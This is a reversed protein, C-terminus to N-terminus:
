GPVQRSDCFLVLFKGGETGERWGGGLTRARYVLTNCVIWRKSLYVRMVGRDGAASDIVARVLGEVVECFCVRPCVLVFSDDAVCDDVGARRRSRM